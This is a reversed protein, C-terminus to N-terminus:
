IDARMGNLEDQLEHLMQENEENQEDIVNDVADNNEEGVISQGDEYRGGDM